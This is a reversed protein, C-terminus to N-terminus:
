RNWDTEICVVSQSNKLLHTKNCSNILDLISSIGLHHAQSFSRIDAIEIEDSSTIVEQLVNSVSGIEVNQRAIFPRSFSYQNGYKYELLSYLAFPTDINNKRLLLANEMAIQEYLAKCHCAKNRDLRVDILQKLYAGEADSLEIKSVHVYKGFLNIVMPDNVAFSVVIDTIGPFAIQIQKRSVPRSSNKIYRVIEAYVSTVSEDKSICDRRFTWRDGFLEHLVGQLYYKNTIGEAVLKDEFLAYITNTLFVTSDSNEIYDFLEKALEDSIYKDSKAKYTGRDCLISVDAIRAALARNNKSLRVDGFEDRIHGRFDELEKDGYLWIGDPYYKKLIIPYISSLKIRSRHLIKGTITYEKQIATEIIEEGLDYDEIGIHVFDDLKDIDFSDPLSEMFSMTRESLGDNAVILVDLDKDYVYSASESTRLLYMVADTEEGFYDRMEEPTLVDDQNRTAYIKLILKRHAISSAFQRRAKREIQRIRERTVDLIEGIENLTKGNARSRIVYAERENRYLSELFVKIEQDLDFGCWNLFDMVLNYTNANFDHTIKIDNFTSFHYTQIWELLQERKYEDHTYAHIFGEIRNSLRESSYQNLVSNIQNSVFQNFDYRRAEQNILSIIGNMSQRNKILVKIFDPGLDDYAAKIRNVARTEDDENYNALFELNGELLNFQNDKLIQKARWEDDDTKETDESPVSPVLPKSQLEQLADNIERECKSGFNRIQSLDELSYNLLDEITNIPPNHRKLCNSVRVSFEFVDISTDHFLKPDLCYRKSLTTNKLVDNSM